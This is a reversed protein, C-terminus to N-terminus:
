KGIEVISNDTSSGSGECKETQGSEGSKQQIQELDLSETSSKQDKELNAGSAENLQWAPISSSKIRPPSPFGDRRLLLAKISQLERGLDSSKDGHEFINQLKVSQDELSQYIRDLADSLSKIQQKLESTTKMHMDEEKKKQWKWIAGLGGVIGAMLVLFGIADRFKQWRGIQVYEQHPQQIM